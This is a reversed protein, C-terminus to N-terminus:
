EEADEPSKLITRARRLLAAEYRRVLVAFLDPEMQSRALVEADSLQSLETNSFSMIDALM